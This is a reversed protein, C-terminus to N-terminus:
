PLEPMEVAPIEGTLHELFEVIDSVQGEDLTQMFQTEAMVRVAEALSDVSGNYFYPATLAVNRLSAVRWLYKHEERGDIHYRGMDDSLLDYQEVYRSGVHNPFLEYFGEGQELALGPAPGSFNVWFHCAACGTDIFAQKGRLAAPSLAERDGQLYRDFAAGPTVLTRIYAALAQHVHAPAIGRARPFVQAFQHRYGPIAELRGSLTADNPLGMVTHDRLHDAIAAELTPARGDRFYASQFAVNWLAPTNRTGRHGLAGVSIREGDAGKGLLDHCSNCSVAGTFSLRPDFYLREGLAIKEATQANDAPIPPTAPLPRFFESVPDALLTAPVVVCAAACLTRIIRSINM